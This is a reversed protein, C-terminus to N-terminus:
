TGEEEMGEVIIMETREAHVVMTLPRNELVSDLKYDSMNTM